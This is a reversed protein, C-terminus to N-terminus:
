NIGFGYKQTTTIVVKFSEKMIELNNIHVPLTLSVSCTEVGPLCACEQRECVHKFALTM